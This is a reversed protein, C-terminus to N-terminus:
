GSNNDFLNNCKAGCEFHSTITMNQQNMKFPNQLLVAANYKVM